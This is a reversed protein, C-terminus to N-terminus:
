IRLSFHEVRLVSYLKSVSNENAVAVEIFIFKRIM